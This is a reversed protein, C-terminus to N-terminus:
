PLPARRPPEPPPQYDDWRSQSLWTTAHAVFETGTKGKRDCEARYGRAGALITELPVSSKLAGAFKKAAPTKPNAGDRKPYVEWFKQFAEDYDSGRKAKLPRAPAPLRSGFFASRSFRRNKTCSAELPFLFSVDNASSVVDGQM